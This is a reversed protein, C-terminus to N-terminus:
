RTLVVGSRAPIRARIKGGAVTAPPIAGLRDQLVAGNAFGTSAADAVVDAPEPANNLIVLVTEDTTSRVFAWQQDTVLVNKTAGHRLAANSKRLAILKKVHEFVSNQDATRGGATFANRPDEKWGGPFDRRNDPDGGGPMAIEDGYYIMPIGRSTLLFTYALRM